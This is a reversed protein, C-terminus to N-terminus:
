VILIVGVNLDTKQGNAGIQQSNLDYPVKIEVEFVTNPMLPMGQCKDDLNDLLFRFCSFFDYGKFKLIIILKRYGCFFLKDCISMLIINYLTNKKPNNGSATTTGQHMSTHGQLNKTPAM